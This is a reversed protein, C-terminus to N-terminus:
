LESYIFSLMEDGLSAWDDPTRSSWAHHPGNLAERFQHLKKANDPTLAGAAELGTILKGLQCKELANEFISQRYRERTETEL